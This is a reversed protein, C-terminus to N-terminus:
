RMVGEKFFFNAGFSGGDATEIGVRVREHDAWYPASVKAGEGYTAKAIRELTEQSIDFTGSPLLRKLVTEAVALMLKGKPSSPDFNRTEKRTEYGFSPALNEYTEHFLRALAEPTAAFPPQSPALDPM